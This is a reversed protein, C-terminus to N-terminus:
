LSKKLGRGKGKGGGKQPKSTWVRGTVSFSRLVPQLLVYSSDTALRLNSTRYKKAIKYRFRWFKAIKLQGRCTVEGPRSFRAFRGSKSRRGERWTQAELEIDLRPHERKLTMKPTGFLELIKRTNPSLGTPASGTCTPVKHGFVFNPM